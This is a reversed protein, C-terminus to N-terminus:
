APHCVPSSLAFRTGAAAQGHELETTAAPVQRMWREEDLPLEERRERLHRRRCGSSSLGAMRGQRWPAWPRLIGALSLSVWRGRSISPGGCLWWSAVKQQM